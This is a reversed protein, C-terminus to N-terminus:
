AVRRASNADTLFVSALLQTYHAFSHYCIPFRDIDSTDDGTHGVHM